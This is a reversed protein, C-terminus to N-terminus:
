LRERYRDFQESIAVGLRHFKTIEKEKPTLYESIM